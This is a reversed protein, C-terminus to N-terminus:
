TVESSSTPATTSAWFMWGRHRWTLCTSRSRGTSARGFLKHHLLRALMRGLGGGAGAAVSFILVWSTADVFLPLLILLQAAFGVLFYEPFARVRLLASAALAAIFWAFLSPLAKSLTYAALIIGLPAGREEPSPFYPPIYLLWRDQAGNLLAYGLYGVGLFILGGSGSVALKRWPLRAM